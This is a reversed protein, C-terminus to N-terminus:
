NKKQLILCDIPKGQLIWKKKKTYVWTNKNFSKAYSLLEGVAEAQESPEGGSVTLGEISEDAFLEEALKSVEVLIGENHNWMEPAICGKCRLSCGQVWVVARKGPGLVDNVGTTWYYARLKM